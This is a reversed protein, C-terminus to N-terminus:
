ETDIKLLIYKGIGCVMGVLLALRWNFDTIEYFSMPGGVTYKNFLLVIFTTLIFVIFFMKVSFKLITKIKDM